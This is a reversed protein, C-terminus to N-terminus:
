CSMFMLMIKKDNDSTAAFEDSRRYVGSIKYFIIRYLCIEPISTSPHLRHHEQSLAPRSVPTGHHSYLSSTIIHPSRYGNHLYSHQKKNLYPYYKKWCRESRQNSRVSYRTNTLGSYLLTVKNKKWLGCLGGEASCVPRCADTLWLKKSVNHKHNKNKM